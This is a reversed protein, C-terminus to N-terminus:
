DVPFTISEKGTEERRLAKDSVPKDDPAKHATSEAAPV